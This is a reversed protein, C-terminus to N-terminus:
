APFQLVYSLLYADYEECGSSDPFYELGGSVSCNHVTEVREIHSRRQEMFALLKASEEEPNPPYLMDQFIDLSSRPIGLDKLMLDADAFYEVAYKGPVELPTVEFGHSSLYSLVEDQSAFM